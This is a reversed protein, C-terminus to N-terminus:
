ASSSWLYATEAPRIPCNRMGYIRYIQVQWHNWRIVKREMRSRKSERGKVKEREKSGKQDLGHRRSLGYLNQEAVVTRFKTAVAAAAADNGESRLLLKRRDGFLDLGEKQIVPSCLYPIGTALGIRARRLVNFQPLARSKLPAVM